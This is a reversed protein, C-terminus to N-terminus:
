DTMSPPIGGMYLRNDIEQDKEVKKDKDKKEVKEPEKFEQESAFHTKGKTGLLQSTIPNKGREMDANWEDIFRKVRMIKMRQGARYETGDLNLCIEADERRRFELTIFGLDKYRYVSM